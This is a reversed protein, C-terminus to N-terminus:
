TIRLVGHVEARQAAHSRQVLGVGEFAGGLTVLAHHAPLGPEAHHQCSGLRLGSAIGRRASEVRRYALAKKPVRTFVLARGAEHHFAGDRVELYGNAAPKAGKEDGHKGGVSDRVPEAALM